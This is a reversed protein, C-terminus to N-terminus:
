QVLYHRFLFIGFVINFALTLLVIIFNSVPISYLERLDVSILIERQNISIKKQSFRRNLDAGIQPSFEIGLICSVPTIFFVIEEVL